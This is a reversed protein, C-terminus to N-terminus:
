SRFKGRQRRLSIQELCSVREQKAGICLHEVSEEMCHRSPHWRSVLMIATTTLSSLTPSVRIGAVEMSLLV